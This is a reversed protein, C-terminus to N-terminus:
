FLIQNKLSLNNFEESKNMDFVIEMCVKRRERGNKVRNKIHRHISFIMAILKFPGCQRFSKLNEEGTQFDTYCKKFIKNFSICIGLM